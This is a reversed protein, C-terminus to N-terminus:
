AALANSMTFTSTPFYKKTSKLDPISRYLSIYLDVATRLEYDSLPRVFSSHVLSQLVLCLSERTTRACGLLLVVTEDLNRRERLLTELPPKGLAAQPETPPTCCPIFADSNRSAKVEQVM